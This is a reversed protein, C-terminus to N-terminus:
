RRRIRFVYQERRILHFSRHRVFNQKGLLSAARVEREICEKDTRSYIYSSREEFDCDISAALERYKHLALENAEFYMRAKEEGLTELLRSYILGHQSTVQAMAHRVTGSGIRSGELLLCEVGAEKLFYACLLGCLGGGVITVDVKKIRTLKEYQPMQIRGGDSWISDSM